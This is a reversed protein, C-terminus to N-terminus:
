NFKSLIIQILPNDVSNVDIYGQISQYGAIVSSHDINLAKAVEGTKYHLQLKKCCIYSVVKRAFPRYGFRSKCVIEDPSIQLCEAVIEIVQTISHSHIAKNSKREIGPLAMYGFATNSHQQTATNM